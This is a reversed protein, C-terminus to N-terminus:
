LEDEIVKITRAPYVCYSEDKRKSVPLNLLRGPGKLGSTMLGQRPASEPSDKKVMTYEHIREHKQCGPCSEKFHYYFVEESKHSCSCLFVSCLACLILVMRQSVCVNAM